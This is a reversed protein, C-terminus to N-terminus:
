HAILVHKSISRKGENIQILYKGNALKKSDIQTEKNQSKGEWLIKSSSESAQNQTSRSEM